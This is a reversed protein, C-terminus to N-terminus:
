PLTKQICKYIEKVKFINKEAFEKTARKYFEMKFDPYRAELNFDNAQVLWMLDQESFNLKTGRALKDLSHTKPPFYANNDLIWRSKLIKEVVLHGIFLSWDYNGAAFLSDMAEIDHAASDCWFKILAKIEMNTFIFKVLNFFYIEMKLFEVCRKDGWGCNGTLVGISFPRQL